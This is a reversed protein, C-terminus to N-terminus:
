VYESTKKTLNGTPKSNLKQQMFMAMQVWTVDWSVDALFHDVQQLWTADNKLTMCKEISSIFEDPTDAIQVLGNDGYPNIVDRLPSSVVPVGGALYEPTKTPSIFRTSENLAFPILAVDWGSLYKPLDDYSRTGIYHLNDAVPLIEPDIKVVPGVIVLHWGPKKEAIAKLLDTNMREDIVGFFGIRPHPIAEQDAPADINKRAM